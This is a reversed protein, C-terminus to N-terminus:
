LYTFILLYICSSSNCWWGRNGKIPDLCGIIQPNLLVGYKKPSCALHLQFSILWENMWASPWVFCFFTLWPPQLLKFLQVTWDPSPLPCLLLNWSSFSLISIFLKPQLDAPDWLGYPWCIPQMTVKDCAM